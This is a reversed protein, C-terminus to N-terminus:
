QHFKNNLFGVVLQKDEIFTSKSSSLCIVNLSNLHHNTFLHKEKIHNKKEIFTHIQQFIRIRTCNQITEDECECM